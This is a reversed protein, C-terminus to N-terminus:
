SSYGNKNVCNERVGSIYRGKPQNEEKGKKKEMREMLKTRMLAKGNGEERDMVKRKM